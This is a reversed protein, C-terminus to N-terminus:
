RLSPDCAMNRFYIEAHFINRIPLNLKKKKKNKLPEVAIYPFKANKEM